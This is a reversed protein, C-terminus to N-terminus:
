RAKIRHYSIIADSLFELARTDSYLAKLHERYYAWFESGFEDIQEVMQRRQGNILSEHIQAIQDAKNTM